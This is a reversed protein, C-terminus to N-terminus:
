RSRSDSLIEGNTAIVDRYFLASDKLHREGTAFDVGILGFRKSFGFTWEFNDLLSWAFYGRVVSGDAVADYLALLHTRFYETRLPDAIRGDEDPQPDAFAAGNETTFLPIDGYLKRLRMLLEYLSRPRVEWEMETYLAGPRRVQSAQVPQATPSPDFRNVSRTYYNVGLFDIPQQIQAFDAAPFDPWHAAFIEAMEDPYSGLLVPDLFQRNMYADARRAAAQDAPDDGAADKPEQNVVIGIEGRCEARFNQVALGHGRLLNHTVHPAASLDRIGPPHVGHVYGADVVVWPENHTTWRPVRDGLRQFVIGAYDAFWEACDRNRWGGREALADPLDWHFLTPVPQIGADLLADVLRAYFDLGPGNVAGTGEPMIRSWSLSFRYAQLGLQRMLDLDGPWRQYHDCAIDANEGTLIGGPQHSFRLWNSPGAGDALPSGEIQFAATAAGWLFDKPFTTM